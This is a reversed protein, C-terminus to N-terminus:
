ELAALLDEDAGTGPRGTRSVPLRVISEFDRWLEAPPLQAVSATAEVGSAIRALSTAM